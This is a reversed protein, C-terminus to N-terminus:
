EGLALYRGFGELVSSAPSLLLGAGVKGGKRAAVAATQRRGLAGVRDDSPDFRGFAPWISPNHVWFMVISMIAPRAQVDDEAVEPSARGIEYVVVHWLSCVVCRTTRAAEIFM